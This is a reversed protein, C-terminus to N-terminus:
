KKEYRLFFGDANLSKDSLDKSDPIFSFTIYFSDSEVEDRLNRASIFIDRFKESIYDAKKSVFLASFKTIGDAKLHITKFFIKKQRAESYLKESISTAIEINNKFQKSLIKVMEDKGDQKGKLYADILQDGTYVSSKKIWNEPLPSHKVSQKETTQMTIM